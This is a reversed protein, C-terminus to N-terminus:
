KKKQKGKALPKLKPKKSTRSVPGETIEVEDDNATPATSAKRKITPRKTDMTPASDVDIIDSVTSSSNRHNSGSPSQRMSGLASSRSVSSPAPSGRPTSRKEPKPQTSHGGTEHDKENRLHGISAGIDARSDVRTERWDRKFISEASLGDGFSWLKGQRIHEGDETSTRLVGDGTLRAGFVDLSLSGSNKVTYRCELREKEERDKDAEKADLVAPEGLNEIWEWARNVVPTGYVINGGVDRHTNVMQSASSPHPQLPLLSVLQRRHEMPLGSPLDEPSMAPYNRFPDYPTAKTDTPIEDYLYYLTDLILPYLISTPNISAIQVMIRFLCSVLKDTADKMKSTWVGKFSLEFQLLRLLLVVDQTSNNEYTASGGSNSEFLPEMSVLKSLSAEIFEEQTSVELTPIPAMIERLPESVHILVRLLEGARQFTESPNQVDSSTSERVRQTICRLGNNVFKGAVVSDVGQAMEGVYFAEESSMSHNFLMLILRDLNAHALTNAPDRLLEQGMEKLVLQMQVMTAAIKWPSLLSTMAPWESLEIDDHSVDMDYLLIRLGAVIRKHLTGNSDELHHLSLEFAERIADLNRYAGQRFGENQSMLLRLSTSDARLEESILLNNELCILVPIHIEFLDAPPLNDNIDDSLLLRRCIDNASRLFTEITPFSLEVTTNAAQQWAPYVLGQLITTTKLAGHVSLYLLVVILVDWAESNLAAVENRGPGLFWRLVEGDLGLALHQDVHWLFVGYRLACVRRGAEDSTMVPVQRLSAVTNDWVKWAWDASKRYKIWLSNALLSPADQDPDGALLLIEPLVDPVVDLRETAPQLASTFMTIDATIRERSVNSLYKGADFELLLSLLPRCQIGRAKWVQQAKDLATVIVEIGNMCAWITSFRHLTDIVAILLDVAISNELLCLTMDLLCHYCKAENMLEVSTSYTRLLTSSAEGGQSTIYRELIPLLWHRLTRVQEFRTSNMLLRCSNLLMSTSPVPVHPGKFVDFLVARIERRIERENSDEPMERARAGYLTVRRQSILSTTTKSLPIWRLFDRHRSESTETTSLGAEGRAILRQIYSAYSFLDYKVLKGFLLSVSRINDPHSAVDSTDLWDFLRDQLFEDPPCFHRRTARDAAEMRWNRILTVAAFPRHDGFQLPTVSWTLLMDLKETFGVEDDISQSFFQLSGMDTLSSISNLLQVLTFLLAETDRLFVQASTSQIESLKSLCAHLFPTTLPRSGLFGDLYEDALRAIFGTQALNCASMQQVVWTLYTRSDVLGESYFTRLLKLCYVFRSIWRDRTDSDSLVGKFTQKINLGPRPASPLAIDALQKKMYSTVVNAWDVSYQTPNYSPKNRLGATENAGFVRLFWVARPIAVNNSQLLDLLDHGKAGHPVSKGLKHLPVDPNALDAFWAQRKSDNLTVRTPIRFTAPPILPVKGAKRIFIENMLAELKSFTATSSLNGNLITHASFTEALVQQNLTFGNKVNSESLLDEEQGARPPYFGLYGLDASGHVKPLWAPPHSEYILPTSANADGLPETM